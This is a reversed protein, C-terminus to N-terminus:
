ANNKKRWIFWGLVFLLVGTGALVPIPWILQGTQILKETNTITYLYGNREYAATYGKPVAERVTYDDSKPQNSWTHTWGNEEGLTVSDIAAGGKYLQVAINDPRHQGDDNWVKRVTIDILKVVDTKPTADIEYRWQGNEEFPLAILFPTCDSFGEVSGTQVALYIGLSLDNIRITGSADSKASQGSIGNEKVYAALRQIAAADGIDEPAGGFAKFAETFTFRLNNGQIQPDAAKYLTLEASPVPTADAQLTVRVAGKKLLDVRNTGAALVDVASCLLFLALVTALLRFRRNEM